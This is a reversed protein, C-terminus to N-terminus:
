DWNYFSNWWRLLILSKFLVKVFIKKKIWGKNKDNYLIIKKDGGFCMLVCVKLRKVIDIKFECFGLLNKVNKVFGCKMNWSLIYLGLFKVLIILMFYFDWFLVYVLGLLYFWM